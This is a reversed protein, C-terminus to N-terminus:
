YIKKHLRKKARVLKKLRKKQLFLEKRLEVNGKDNRLKTGIETLQKKLDSCEKDFWPKSKVHKTKKRKKLNCKKSAELISNKITKQRNM